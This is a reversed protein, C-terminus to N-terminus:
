GLPKDLEELGLDTLSKQEPDAVSEEHNRDTPAVYIINGSVRIVEVRAGRDVAVGQAVSDLRKGDIVVIGSPLFDTQAVGIRGVLSQRELCKASPEDTTPVSMIHRGMPTFPLLKLMWFIMLPVAVISTSLLTLGWAVSAKFALVVAAIVAALACIALLGGSPVFLEVAIILLALLLLLISWGADSNM